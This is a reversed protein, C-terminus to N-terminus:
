FWFTGIGIGGGALGPAGSGPATHYPRRFRGSRIVLVAPSHNTGGYTAGRM